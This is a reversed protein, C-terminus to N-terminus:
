PAWTFGVALGRGVTYRHRTVAGQMIRVPADLLNRADLKLSLGDRLEYRFAADLLHRAEEYTDPLPLIGAEVIRRGVVNYLLTATLRGSPATYALGANVVYPSQGVMPREGSTLSSVDAAGIAIRSYMLTANAFVAFPLLAPSLVALSRRVELEAGYNVAEKTNVFGATTAGTTGVLIREIPGDFRKAFLGVAVIEGGSPYWEWRVDANQILARRLQDNGCVTVGGLIEFYCVGSLERYEPRSLTQTVAARLQHNRGLDVTASLSPLVDTTVPDARSVTGDTVRTEVAVESGEVRAGAIVRVRRGVPLEVQAYGAWLRDAATYRGGNANAVLGLDHTRSFIEEPTAALQEDTLSLNVIDYSRTDATRDTTRYQGGVKLAAGGPRLAFTWGGDLQWGSERLASFTRNGSRPGGWWRVPTVTGTASDLRAEYALDSRDPEDRTVGSSTVAWQLTHRGGLLHEGALQNSRVSRAVYDLRTIDFTTAFEENFGAARVVANDGGRNYTNGLSLKSTAGLRTTLNLIGGWLVSGTVSQGRYVNQPRAGGSGDAVGLAREEDRRVDVGLQYTLSALYGVMRGLIPDEGGVSVSTAANPLGAGSAPSWVNRFAALLDPVQDAPVSALNEAAAVSAPLARRGGPLALWESGTRPARPLDRFTAATNIGSSLSWTLVRGRDFERTRLNVQAGSFDGPQDATFTKSTSVAELLNAPFLDLPVVKRDPEPSPLRANNLSTTTYREGLGRVLVYRGDQVTVGSVRQMAQGADSDPSRAIQEATVATVIGTATRQEELAAAVTGREVAASVSIETLLVTQPTVTVDHSVIGGHPVVIGSVTKPAFGIARVVIATTGAPIGLLTYRGDIGSTVPTGGAAIGVHAGAVPRGTAEEIIRGVIRGTPRAPAPEQAALLLPLAALAGAVAAIRSLSTLM